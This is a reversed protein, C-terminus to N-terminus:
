AFAHPLGAGQVGQFIKSLASRREGESFKVMRGPLQETRFLDIVRDPAERVMLAATPLAVNMFWRFSRSAEAEVTQEELRKKCKVAEAQALHQAKVVMSAHWDSAGAFFDSPRRLLDTPLVRLKNGYRLEIRDWPNGAEVGFLQDGKEYVNTQKGAEKSGFYFSRAQGHVWDGLMNCKPEKGNVNCLGAEYDSRVTDFGGPLGDFFDLALDARTIDGNCQDIFDAMKQRWGFAGFTCALGYLNVHITRNQAQQRPSSSSSLFGVWGCEVEQRTISWRFKYFDHGKRVEVAVGFGDGLMGAVDQAIGFAEIACAREDPKFTLPGGGSVDTDPMSSILNHLQYARLQNHDPGKINAASVLLNGNVDRPAPFAALDIPEPFLLDVSPVPAARRPLTFRLWDVHVPARYAQRDAQLRVKITNGDLVLQTPRTLVPGGPCPQRDLM